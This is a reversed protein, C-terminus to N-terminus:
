RREGRADRGAVGLGLFERPAFSDATRWAIACEADLGEFYGILL